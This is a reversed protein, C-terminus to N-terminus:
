VQRQTGIHDYPFLMILVAAVMSSSYMLLLVIKSSCITIGPWSLVLKWVVCPGVGVGFKIM